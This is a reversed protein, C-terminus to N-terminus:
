SDGPHTMMSFVGEERDVIVVIMMPCDTFTGKSPGEVPWAGHKASHVCQFSPLVM